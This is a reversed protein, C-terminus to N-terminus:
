RLPLEPQFADAEEQALANRWALLEVWLLHNPDHKAVVIQAAPPEVDAPWDAPPLAAIGIQPSETALRMFEGREQVNIRLSLAPVPGLSGADDASAVTFEVIPGQDLPTSNGGGPLPMWVWYYAELEPAEDGSGLWSMMLEAAEAREAFDLFVVPFAVDEDGRGEVGDNTVMVTWAVPVEHALVEFEPASM